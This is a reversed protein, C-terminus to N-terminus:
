GGDPVERVQVWVERTYHDADSRGRADEYLERRSFVWGCAETRHKRRDGIPVTPVPPHAADPEPLDVYMRTAAGYEKQLSRFLEGRDSTFADYWDSEGYQYGETANVYTERIQLM